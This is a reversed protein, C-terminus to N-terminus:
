WGAILANIAFAYCASATAWGAFPMSRALPLTNAM